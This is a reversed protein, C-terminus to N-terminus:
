RVAVLDPERAPAETMRLPPPPALPVPPRLAPPAVPATTTAPRTAPQGSPQQGPAPQTAPQTAAQAGSPRPAARGPQLPVTIAANIEPNRPDEPVMGLVPAVRAIVSGAAPAAVWGATAFGHSKANPKPEDVMVYLAYRPANIPFAGVFAAIRKDALYGGRPGTKQATGTKGGVFYGPVEAGKASGETVVIRMLRRMTESTRESLVREGERVTGPPQALLTPQRLIGGNAVASIGTIVHLPTVSIGHGFGVTFTNIERWASAPPALTGATEPLEVHLRGLMGMRGMFERHRQPGVAAAMHAAGLNSSYALIEPLTLWRNKGRYDSITFRGYRIPRSADYGGYISTTGADLAMAATLLKFTSGPEYTGVTVRNFRQEPTAAGIDGADYDPLSVMSLIEGSNIDTLIGAGGIGNYEAIATQVADRLAIQVRVDISLRLPDHPRLRLREDFFREIGSIGEGDVDVNGLVHVAARGQPYYRREATQFELGAVALDNVAQTERPTLGRSVYAFSRDGSLRSVLRDRELQPLVRILRDALAAPNDILRPNAVLATVPLSVALIEGNRDTVTARAGGVVAHQAAAPSRAAIRRPERPDILTAHALKLAVAGFLLGFGAAALVLRGRSRELSALRALDPQHAAREPRREARVAARTRPLPPATRDPPAADPHPARPDSM